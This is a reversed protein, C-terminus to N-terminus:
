LFPRRAADPLAPVAPLWAVRDAPRARIGDARLAFRVMGQPVVEDSAMREAQTLLRELELIAARGAAEQREHARQALLSRDQELLQVGLWVLTAAPPVVVAVLLLALARSRGTWFRRFVM